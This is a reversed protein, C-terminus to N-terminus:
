RLLVASVTRSMWGAPSISFVAFRDASPAVKPQIAQVGSDDRGSIDEVHEGCVPRIASRHRDRFIKRDHRLHDAGLDVRVAKCSKTSRESADVLRQRSLSRESATM